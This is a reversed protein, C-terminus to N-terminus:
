MAGSVSEFPRTSRDTLYEFLISLSGKAEGTTTRASRVRGMYHVRQADDEELHEVGGELRAHLSNVHASSAEQAGKTASTPACM